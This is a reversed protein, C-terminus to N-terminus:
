LFDANTSLLEASFFRYAMIQVSKNDLESVALMYIYMECKTTPLAMLSIFYPLAAAVDRITASISLENLGLWFPRRKASSVKLRMKKFSSILIEVLFIM